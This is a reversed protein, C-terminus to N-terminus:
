EALTGGPGLTTSAGYRGRGQRNWLSRQKKETSMNPSLYFLKSLHRSQFALNQTISCVYYELSSAKLTMLCILVQFALCRFSHASSLSFCSTVPRM